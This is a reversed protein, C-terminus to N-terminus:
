NHFYLMNDLSIKNFQRNRFGHFLHPLWDKFSLNDYVNGGFAYAIRGEDQQKPKTIWNFEASHIINEGEWLIM